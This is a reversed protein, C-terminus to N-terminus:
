NFVVITTRTPHRSFSLGLNLRIAQIQRPGINKIAKIPGISSSPLSLKIIPDWLCCFLLVESSANISNTVLDLRFLPEPVTATTIVIALAIGCRFYRCDGDFLKRSVGFLEVHGCANVTVYYLWLM